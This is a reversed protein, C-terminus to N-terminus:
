GKKRVDDLMAEHTQPGNKLERRDKELYTNFNSVYKENDLSLNYKENMEPLATSLPM